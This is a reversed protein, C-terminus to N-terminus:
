WDRQSAQEPRNAYSGVAQTGPEIRMHAVSGTFPFPGTASYLPTVHQKRDLGVDLGEGVWGLILTPSMDVVESVAIGNLILTGAGKREGLARHELVFTNDGAVVPLNECAVHAGTGGHYVFTLQGDRAFLALGAIPDGLSFVV